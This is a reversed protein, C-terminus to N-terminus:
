NPIHMIYYCALYPPRNEHSGGLGAHTVTTSATIGTTQLNNSGDTNKTYFHRLHPDETKQFGKNGPVISSHIVYGGNNIYDESGFLHRHGPDSLTVTVNHTHAPMQATSLTVANVGGTDGANYTVTGGYSGGGMKTVGVPFVGRKDPTGNKGNCLYVQEWDGVGTGDITFNSMDGYYEVAVYPVMKTYPKTSTINTSIYNAIYTDIDAIKVYATLATQLADVASSVTCLETIVAQLVDHTGSSATVGSLCSGITYNAEITSVDSSLIGIQEQLNCASSILASIVHILTIDGSTPLYDNVIDCIPDPLTPVIGSGNLVTALYDTLKEEIESLPMGNEIGLFLIDNGTYKVCKDSVIQTCGDFCGTCDSM